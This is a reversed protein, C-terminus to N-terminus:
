WPVLRDLFDDFDFEPWKEHIFIMAFLVLVLFIGLVIGQAVLFALGSKAAGRAKRGASKVGRMTPAMVLDRMLRESRELLRPDDIAVDCSELVDRTCADASFERRRVADQWRKAERSDALGLEVLLGARVRQAVRDEIAASPKVAPGSGKRKTSKAAPKPGEDIEIEELVPVPAKARFTIEVGSYAIRDGDALDAEERQTGNVQVGGEGGIYIVKPPDDWVHVEGEKWGALVVDATEGGLRTLGKKLDVRSKVGGAEIELWRDSM